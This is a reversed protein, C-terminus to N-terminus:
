NKDKLQKAAYLVALGAMALIGLLAAVEPAPKSSSCNCIQGEMSIKSMTPQMSPPKCVFRPAFTGDNNRCVDQWDPVRAM